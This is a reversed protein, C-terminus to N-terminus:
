YAIEGFLSHNLGRLIKVQVIAGVPYGANDNFNVIKNTRTRGYLQNQRGHGELLVELVSGELQKHYGQTIRDQITHVEALRGKKVEEPIQDAMHEAKTGPRSSFKFSFIQDFRIQELATLTSKFDDDSEGPFGVIIDTTISCGPAESRLIDIKDLYESFSYGRRMSSLIRDSGSQLPLHVHECVKDLSGLATAVSADFDRPHSTTFRIRDLGPIRSLEELLETFRNGNGLDKGYANVNQGLLTIEKVGKSCLQPVEELIEGLNRSQERGRTYPVVCYACFNSCGQMITVYSCIPRPGRKPALMHLSSIDESFDVRIVRQRDKRIKEVLEPLESINHTGLVLDLHHFKKSLEYHQQQAVCGAVVIVMDPNKLKANKIKGLSSHVKHEAKERIACTNIIVVDANDASDGSEMGLQEMLECMKESDHENMQCGYTELFYKGSLSM